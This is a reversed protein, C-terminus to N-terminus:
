IPAPATAAPPIMLKIFDNGNIAFVKEFVSLPNPFPAFLLWVLVSFSKGIFMTSIPLKIIASAIQNTGETGTLKRPANNITIKPNKKAVTDLRMTPITPEEFLGIEPIIIAVKNTTVKIRLAVPNSPYSPIAEAILIPVITHMTEAIAPSM